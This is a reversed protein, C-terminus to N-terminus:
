LLNLAKSSIRYVRKKSISRKFNNAQAELCKWTESMKYVFSEHLTFIVFNIMLWSQQKHIRLGTPDNTIRQNLNDYLSLDNKANKM